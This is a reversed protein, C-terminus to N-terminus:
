GRGERYKLKTFKFTAKHESGDKLKVALQRCPNTANAWAKETKWVYTYVDITAEYSLGSSGASLTEEVADTSSSTDCDVQQSKPYGEAFIDLGQDGILSFKVPIAKGVKVSNM